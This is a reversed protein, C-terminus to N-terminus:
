LLFSYRILWPVLDVVFPIGLELGGNSTYVASSCELIAWTDNMKMMDIAAFLGVYSPHHNFTMRLILHHFLDLLADRKARIAMDLAMM